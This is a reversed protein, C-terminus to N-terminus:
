LKLWDIRAKDLIQEMAKHMSVTRSVATTLQEFDVEANILEEVIAQSEPFDEALGLANEVTKVLLTQRASNDKKSAKGKYPADPQVGMWDWFSMGQRYSLQLIRSRM